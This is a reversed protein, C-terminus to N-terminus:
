LEVIKIKKQALLTELQSRIAKQHAFTTIIAADFEIHKLIHPPSVAFGRFIRGQKGPDNDAVALIRLDTEQLSSFVAECTESAGFLVVRKDGNDELNKLKERIKGKLSSYIRVIEASYEGLMNQRMEEGEPTLEYAYSKGNLPKLTLLGDKTFQKIYSNVMAGSLGVRRGLSSQNIRSDKKINELLFLIRAQKGPQLFIKGQIDM